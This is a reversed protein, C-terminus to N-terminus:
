RSIAKGQKKLTELLEKIKQNEIDKEASDVFEELNLDPFEDQYEMATMAMELRDLDRAIKAEDGEQEEYELWLHLFSEVNPIGKFLENIGDKEKKNKEEKTMGDHPTIDGVIYEAMDHLIAMKLLKESDCHFQPGLFMTMFTLRFSHDAVSEPNPIGAREWGARKIAKLKGANHFLTLFAENDM